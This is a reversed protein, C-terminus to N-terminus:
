RPLIPQPCGNARVFTPSGAAALNWSMRRPMSAQTAAPSRAWTASARRRLTAQSGCRLGPAHGTVPETGEQQPAECQCHWQQEQDGEADEGHQVGRRAIGYPGQEARPGRGRAADRGDALGSGGSSGEEHLVALPQPLDSWPSRPREICLPWSTVPAM